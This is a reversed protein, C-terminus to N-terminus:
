NKYSLAVCPFIATITSCLQVGIVVFDAWPPARPLEHRKTWGALAPTKKKPQTGFFRTSKKRKPEAEM